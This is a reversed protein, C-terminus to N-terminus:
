QDVEPDNIASWDLEDATECLERDAVVTHNGTRAEHEAATPIGEDNRDYPGSIVKKEDADVVYYEVGNM